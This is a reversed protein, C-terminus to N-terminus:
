IIKRRSPKVPKKESLAYRMDTIVSEGMKKIEARAKSAVYISM